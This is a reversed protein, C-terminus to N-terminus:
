INIRFFRPMFIDRDLQKESLSQKMLDKQIAEDIKLKIEEIKKEQNVVIEEIFMHYFAKREANPMEQLLENLHHM